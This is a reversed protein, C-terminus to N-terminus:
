ALITAKLSFFDEKKHVHTVLERLNVSTVLFMVMAGNLSEGQMDM